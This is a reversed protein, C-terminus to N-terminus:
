KAESPKPKTGGKAQPSIACPFETTCQMAMWGEIGSTCCEISLRHNCCIAQQRSHGDWSGIWEKDRLAQWEHSDM